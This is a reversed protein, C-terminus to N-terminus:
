LMKKYYYIDDKKIDRNIKSCLPQFNKYHNLTIVESETKASSIPIIHDLDWGHNLEGNYLGRNDWNMWYEFKSEIYLKFDNFSCGLIEQTKSLKKYSHSKMSKLISKSISSRLAFLKDIKRRSCVNANIKDKNEIRYKSVVAKISNSNKLYYEKNYEKIYEKNEERYEEQYKKINMNNKAYEKFYEKFYEKNEEKYKKNYEKFYEKNEEKYKKNTINNRLKQEPTIKLKNCELCFNTHGDKRRKDKVMDKFEKEINCIKCTKM